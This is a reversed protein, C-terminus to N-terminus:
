KGESSESYELDKSWRDFRNYFFFHGPSKFPVELSRGKQFMPFSGTKKGGKKWVEFLRKPTFTLPDKIGRRIFSRTHETDLPSGNLLAIGEALAAKMKLKKEADTDKPINKEEQLRETFPGGLKMLNKMTDDFIMRSIAEGMRNLKQSQIWPRNNM